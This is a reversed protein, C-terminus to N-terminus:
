FVFSLKQGDLLHLEGGCAAPYRNISIELYEKAVLLTFNLGSLNVKVLASSIRSRGRRPIHYGLSSPTNLM